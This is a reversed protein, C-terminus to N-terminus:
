VREQTMWEIHEDAFRFSALVVSIKADPELMELVTDKVERPLLQFGGRLRGRVDSFGRFFETRPSLRHLLPQRMPRPIYGHRDTPGTRANAMSDFFGM